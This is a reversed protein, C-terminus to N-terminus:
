SAVSPPTIGLVSKIDSERGDNEFVLLSILGFSTPLCLFHQMSEPTPFVSLLIYTRQNASRLPFPSCVHYVCLLM